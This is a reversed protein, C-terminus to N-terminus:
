FRRLDLTMPLEDSITLNPVSTERRTDSASSGRWAGARRRTPMSRCATTIAGARIPWTTSAAAWRVSCGPTSCISCWRRTCRSPRNCATPRNGPAFRVGAVFEGVRGTPQLPVPIGNCTLLYRQPPLGNLKVQLRELSSDVYRVTGGGRGGRGACALAGAGPATGTRHRQRRLRRGQSVSSWTRPSGNPACRYGAANLEVIVDAFDQEIFHPLLFPRAAGHGLAGTEAACLARALLAVLARLLLQQALSMRAHPPMEFARLELLGLRGTAGDPSYLKDICFEARHTNGTVDILLNRLLRDV